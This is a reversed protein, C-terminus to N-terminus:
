LVGADIIAGDRTQALEHREPLTRRVAVRWGRCIKIERGHELIVLPRFHSKLGLDFLDAVVKNAMEMLRYHRVVDWDGDTVTDPFEQIRKLIEQIEEFEADLVDRSATKLSYWGQLDPPLKGFVVDGDLVEGEPETLLQPEIAEFDSLLSRLFIQLGSTM